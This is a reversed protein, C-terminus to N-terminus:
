KEKEKKTLPKFINGLNQEEKFQSCFDRARCYSECNRAVARRHEIGVNKMNSYTSRAVSIAEERSHCVGGTLARGGQATVVAWTEGRRWQEDPTCLPLNTKADELKQIRENILKETKERDWEILRYKVVDYPPYKKKHKEKESWNKFIALINLSNVKYGNRELLNKLFNQQETWKDKTDFIVAYTNVFKYDWLNVHFPDGDIPEILDVQGGLIVGGYPGNYISYFRKETTGSTTAHQFIEHGVTGFVSWTLDAVDVIIEDNHKNELIVQRASKSLQTATWDSRGKNYQSQIKMCANVYVQPLNHKNSYAVMLGREYRGM